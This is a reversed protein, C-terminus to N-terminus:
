EDLKTINEEIDDIIEEIGDKEEKDAEKLSNKLDDLTDLTSPDIKNIEPYAISFTKNMKEETADDGFLMCLLNNTVRGQKVNDDMFAKSEKFLNRYEPISLKGTMAGIRTTKEVPIYEVWHVPVDHINGDGGSVPVYTVRPIGNYGYATAEICDGYKNSNIPNVKVICETNCKEHAIDSLSFVNAIAEHQWNCFNTGYVDKYIYEAPKTDQYSQVALIPAFAFYIGYFYENNLRIFREKIEAYNYGAFDSPESSIDTKALTSTTVKNIMKYKIFKFDDYPVDPNNGVILKKMEVQTQPTFLQRFEKENNRDYAGLLIEFETNSLPTFGRELNDKRNAFKDLAKEQKSIYKEYKKENLESLYSGSPYRNFILNPAVESGFIVANEDTFIPKPKVLYARLVESHVRVQDGDSETWTITLTGEYTHQVVKKTKVRNILFPNGNIHGSQVYLASRNMNSKNDHLGYKCNMLEFRKSDFVPDFVIMDWTQTLLKQYTHTEFLNNLPEMQDKAEKYQKDAEQKQEDAIKNEKKIKKVILVTFTIFLSLSLIPLPIFYGFHGPFMDQKTVLMSILIISFLLLIVGQFAALVKFGRSKKNAEAYQRKASNLKEITKKNAEVDVKSKKTLEEFYKKTNQDHKSKFEASYREAINHIVKTEM